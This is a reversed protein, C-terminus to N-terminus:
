STAPRAWIILQGPPVVENFRGDPSTRRLVERLDSEFEGLRSGFLHPASSSASFVSAVIEDESRELVRKAGLMRRRPGVFGAALMIESEGSPTGGPLTGQGARKVPGLYRVVLDRIEQRPPEPYNLEEDTATVDGDGGLTKVDVHVWAGNPELMELVTAAVHEREMWHFSQAFTATRFVGLDLPLQEARANVWRTNPQDQRRAEERAEAIMEEDADIGVVEDYLPALLLAIEGTGCGVDLLRGSGDLGLEERFATALEPPYPLRGERYYRASGGFLTKDWEWDAPTMPRRDWGEFDSVDVRWRPYNQLKKRAIAAVAPDPEVGVGEVGRAALMVTAKGTGCGADVARSPVGVLAVVDDILEDPYSPRVRDYLAADEGFVLRQEKM